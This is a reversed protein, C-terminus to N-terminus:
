KTLPCAETSERVERTCQSYLFCQAPQNEVTNGAGRGEELARAKIAEQPGEEYFRYFVCDPHNQCTQKCDDETEVFLVVDLLNRSPYLTCNQSILKFLRIKFLLRAQRGIPVKGAGNEIGATGPQVGTAGFGPGSVCNFLGDKPFPSFQKLKKEAFPM